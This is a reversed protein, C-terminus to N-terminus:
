RWRELIVGDRTGALQERVSKARETIFWKLPHPRRSRGFGRGDGSTPDLRTDTVAQGFRAFKRPSEEAVVPRLLAALEDVRRNLLEPVFVTTLLEELDHLYREQFEPIAMVRELLRHSGMWPHRISAHVRDAASGGGGFKGWANDLDWPIFQFQQTEPSLWLCFNQGNNLFGDYSSILVTVALFRSFEELDIFQGIAAAFAEDHAHTLLRALDIVRESQAPTLRTKPDYIGKYASWDGGLDSFLETTVPKFLSGKRTGFWEVAFPQDVNEVMAYVGLYAPPSANTSVFMRAFATRPAPVGAARYVEYGLTDHICSDDSVLNAFNLTTRGALPANTSFKNLDVKFPRKAMEQSRLYTGNGKYRVAANSVTLDEFEVTANVWEFEIGRVGSLGNRRAAPNRLEFRRGPARQQELPEISHPEIGAWEEPTFRLHVTWLNTTAYLDAARRLEATPRRASLAALAHTPTPFPGEPLDPERSRRARAEQAAEQRNEQLFRHISFGAWLISGVAFGLTALTVATGSRRRPPHFNM